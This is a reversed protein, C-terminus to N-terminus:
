YDVNRDKWTLQKRFVCARHRRNKFAALESEGVSFHIFWLGAQKDWVLPIHGYENGKDDVRYLGEWGNDLGDLKCKYGMDKVIKPLSIIDDTIGKMTSAALALASGLSMMAPTRPPAPRPARPSRAAARPRPRARAAAARAAAAGGGGRAAAGGGGGGRTDYM